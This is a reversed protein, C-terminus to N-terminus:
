SRKDNLCDEVFKALRSEDLDLNVVPIGRWKKGLHKAIPGIVACIPPKLWSALDELEEITKASTIKLVEERAGTLSKFGEILIVDAKGEVLSLLYELDQKLKAEKMILAVEGRSVAVIVKAGAKAFRYTDKGKVDITEVRHLHKFAAVRLGKSTFHSILLEMARTKYTERAGILALVIPKVKSM